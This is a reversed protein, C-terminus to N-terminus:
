GSEETFNVHREVPYFRAKPESFVPPATAQRAAGCREDKTEQGGDGAPSKWHEVYDDMWGQVLDEATCGEKRAIFELKKMIDESIELDIRIKHGYM